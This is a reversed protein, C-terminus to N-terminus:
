FHWKAKELTLPSLGLIGLSFQWIINRPFTISSRGMGLFMDKNNRPGGGGLFCPQTTSLDKLPLQQRPQELITYLCSGSCCSSIM